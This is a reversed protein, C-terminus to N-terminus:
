PNAAGLNPQGGTLMSERVLGLSTLTGGGDDQTFTVSQAYLNMDLMAMPSWVYVPQGVEWLGGDPKQWGYTTVEANIEEGDRWGGELKARATAEEQNIAPHEGVIEMPRFRDIGPHEGRIQSAKKGNREDNGTAQSLDAYPGNLALNQITVRAAIINQGEVLRAAGGANTFKDVAVMNGQADDTLALGRQRALRELFQFVTEGPIIDAREFPKTGAARMVLGVGHPQLVRRAIAEWNQNKFEGTSVPASSDVADKTLSMALIQVGHRGADFSTQRMYVWGTIVPQGALRITCADGPKIQMSAWNKAFAGDAGVAETCTFQAYSAGQGFERTVQVSTWDRFPTGNIILEAFEAALAM